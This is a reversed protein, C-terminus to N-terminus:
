TVTIIYPANRADDARATVHSAHSQLAHARRSPSPPSPAVPTGSSTTSETWTLAYGDLVHDGRAFCAAILPFEAIAGPAVARVIRKVPGIWIVPKGPPLPIPRRHAEGTISSTTPPAVTLASLSVAERNQWANKDHELAWGGGEINVPASATAEAVFAVDLTQSSENRARLLVPVCTMNEPASEDLVVESAHEITWSVKARAAVPTRATDGAREFESVDSIHHAGVVAGDPTSWTVMLGDDITGSRRSGPAAKRLSEHFAFMPEAAAIASTAGVFDFWEKPEKINDPASDPSCKILTEMAEGPKVVRPVTATATLPTLTYKVPTFAKGPPTGLWVRGLTFTQECESTITLRVVRALPHTSSPLAQSKITLSPTVTVSEAIRITRYQLLKPAPPEPQYCVCIRVGCRGVASPHFWLPWRISTGSALTHWEPLAYVVGDADLADSPTFTSLANAASAESVNPHSTNRRITPENVAVHSADVPRLVSKPLRVRIWKAMPQTVNSIVLEVRHLAGNMATIPLMELAADCRPVTECVNFILRRHKPVDRLWEGNPGRRTRPAKIDFYRRGRIIQKEGVTWAIGLVRLTGAVSPTITLRIVRASRPELKATGVHARVLSGVPDDGCADNTQVNYNSDESPTFEWLVRLNRVDMAIHLPNTLTVDVKLDEGAACVDTQHEEFKARGGQLWNSSSVSSTLSPPIVGGQEIGNWASESQDIGSEDHSERDDAFTVHVDGVDVSPLPCALDSARDDRETIPTSRLYMEMTDEFESIRERQLNAPLHACRTADRFFDVADKTRGARAVLHGLTTNLHEEAAAWAKGRFVPLAYAYCRTAGAIADARVYRAGALVMYSAFKRMMPPTCEVFTFAAKELLLGARLDNGGMASAQIFPVNSERHASLARLAEGYAVSARVKLRTALASQAGGTAADFKVYSAIAQTYAHDIDKKLEPSNARSLMHVHAMAEYSSGLHRWASQSKYDVHALKYHGMAADYDRCMFALDGALRIQSEPSQHTYGDVEGERRTAGASRGWFSKFQNRLGKRTNFIQTSLTFLKQEIHPLLTKTTFTRMYNRACEVDRDSMHEGMTSDDNSDDVKRTRNVGSPGDVGRQRADRWASVIDVRSSFSGASGHADATNVTILECDWAGTQQVSKVIEEAQARTVGGDDKANWVVCKGFCIGPDAAGSAFARSALVRAKQAEFAAVVDAVNSRARVCVIGGLPHDVAEVDNCRTAREEVDFYADCRAVSAEAERRSREALMTADDRAGACADGVSAVDFADGRVADAAVAAVREDEDDGGDDGHADDVDGLRTELARVTTARTPNEADLRAVRNLGGVFAHAAFAIRMCPANTAALASALEPEVCVLVRPTYRSAISRRAGDSPMM